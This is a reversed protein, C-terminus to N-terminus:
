ELGGGRLSGNGGFDLASDSGHSMGENDEEEITKQSFSMMSFDKSQMNQMSHKLKCNKNATFQLNSIDM